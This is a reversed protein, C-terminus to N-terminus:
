KPQLEWLGMVRGDVDSFLAYRGMGPVEVKEVVVKGGAQKVKELAPELQPVDIYLSMNGPWPGDGKPKMIGGNIGGNGGTEAQWYDMGPMSKVSWGFVRVYFDSTREPDKSWLEWHVVPQGM